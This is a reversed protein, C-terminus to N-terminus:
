SASKRLRLLSLSSSSFGIQASVPVIDRMGHRHVLVPVNVYATARPIEPGTM